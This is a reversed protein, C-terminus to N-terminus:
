NARTMFLAANASMATGTASWAPFFITLTNGQVCYPNPGWAGSGDVSVTTVTTATTVYKCTDPKSFVKECHCNDATSLACSGSVMDGSKIADKFSQDVDGCTMNRQALCSVSKDIKYTAVEGFLCSGDANLAVTGQDIYDGWTPCNGGWDDLFEAMDLWNDCVGAVNWNGTLDGGCPASAAAQCTAAMSPPMADFSVPTADIPMVDVPASDVPKAVDDVRTDIAVDAKPKDAPVDFGADLPVDAVSADAPNRDAASDVIRADLRATDDSADLRPMIVSADVDAIPEATRVAIAIGGGGLATSPAFVSLVDGQVCYERGGVEYAEDDYLQYSVGNTTYSGANPHSNPLVTCLCVGGSSQCTKTSNPLSADGYVFSRVSDCSQGIGNLCSESFGITIGEMDDIQYTGDARFKVYGVIPVDASVGCGAVSNGFDDGYKDIIQQETLGHSCAGDLKWTGVLSGGCSSTAALTCARVTTQPMNTTSSDLPAAKNASAGGCSIMLLSCLVFLRKM